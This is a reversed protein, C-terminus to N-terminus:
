LRYFRGTNLGLVTTRPCAWPNVLQSLRILKCCILRCFYKWEPLGASVKWGDYSSSRPVATVFCTLSNSWVRDWRGWTKFGSLSKDLPGKAGGTLTTALLSALCVNTQMRNSLCLTHAPSSTYFNVCIESANPSESHLRVISWRTVTCKLHLETFCNVLGFGM